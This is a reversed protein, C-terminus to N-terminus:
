PSSPHVFWHAIGFTDAAGQRRPKTSIKALLDPIKAEALALARRKGPGKRPGDDKPLSSQWNAPKMLVLRDVTITSIIIGAIVGASFATMLASNANMGVFQDEVLLTRVGHMKRLVERELNKAGTLDNSIPIYLDPMGLEEGPIPAEHWGLLAGNNGPDIAILSGGDNVPKALGKKMRILVTM